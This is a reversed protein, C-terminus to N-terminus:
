QMLHQYSIMYHIFRLISVKVIEILAWVKMRNDGLSVTTMGLQGVIWDPDILLPLQTDHDNYEGLVWLHVNARKFDTWVKECEGSWPVFWRMRALWLPTDANRFRQNFQFIELVEGYADQVIPGPITVHVFSSRNSGVTRSGYYRRGHIIVYDFFTANRDLPLSHHVMPRDDIQADELDQSLAALGAVTGREESSAKLMIEAAQCPLSDKPHHLLNFTLRGIECTKHFERFFTTELEGNAHNNTKFSKLVKNLREFLFTWFDHLPGFNRACVGVHTSFHHNPKLVSSGYLHILETNYERILRDAHNIDEDSLM